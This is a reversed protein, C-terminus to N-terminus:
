KKVVKRVGILRQGDVAKVFYVSAAYPTLDIETTEGTVKWVKLRNGYVDFLQLEADPTLVMNNMILQVNLRDSTPNPYVNMTANMWHNNVGTLVTLHLTVVSDCGESTSLIFSYDGTQTIGPLFVTDAYTLPLDDASITLNDEVHASYNITLHLTVLSDCGAANTLHWIPTTTSSTYTIGDIWTYSDCTDVTAIGATSNRITLHLTVLSDCGAANTLHWIPTSTSATYTVGDIWTYSDCTDVTAIGVTSNRITLHLTVLSDCGAANTLHWTPTTTSATYTVGDIWTYSDCTDVMAIGATSHRITLHLTVLSDCGAANTLHWTSTTTSATYTIGDIWTYSDCTDVTAIGATSNRITLHLTVLSDCGAANTLHWTPTTTSSTYTIGDIWTYSDCTDVTAIGA